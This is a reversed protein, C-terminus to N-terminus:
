IRSTSAAFSAANAHISNAPDHLSEIQTNRKDEEVQIWGVCYGFAVCDSTESWRDL